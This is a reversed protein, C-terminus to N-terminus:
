FCISRRFQNREIHQAIEQNPSISNIITGANVHFKQATIPEYDFPPTQGFTWEWTMLKEKLALIETEHTQMLKTQDLVEVDYGSTKYFVDVIANIVGEVSLSPCAEKLNVVPSSVSAISKYNSFKQLHGRDKAKLIGGIAKLDTEILLTGHHMRRKGKLFFANGSVKKGEFTLDKRPSVELLLGKTALADQIVKFHKMEDYSSHGRIFSFNLNGKDHYVTGGGSYRRLLHVNKELALAVDVERWPNQNRGFVVTPANVYLMLVSDYEQFAHFLTMEIAHNLYPNKDKSIYILTKGM